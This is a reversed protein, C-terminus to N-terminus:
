RIRKGWDPTERTGARFEALIALIEDNPPDPLGFAQFQRMTMWLVTVFYIYEVLGRPGLRQEMADYIHDELTGNIVQRIFSQLLRESETLDEDRGAYLAEIAELRVGAGLADPVHQTAVVNTGMEIALVQDAFERDHHSYTDAREGATRVLSSLQVRNVAFPPSALLARFYPTLRDLGDGDDARYHHLVQDYLKAEAPPLRERPIPQTPRTM